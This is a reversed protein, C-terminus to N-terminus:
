EMGIDKVPSEWGLYISETLSSFHGKWINMGRTPVIIFSLKFNDVIIIDVGDSLGGHLRKKTVRYKSTHKEWDAVYKHSATDTLIVTQNSM